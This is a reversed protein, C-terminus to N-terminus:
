VDHLYFYVSLLSLCDYFAVGLRPWPTAVKLVIILLAIYTKHERRPLKGADSNLRRPIVWFSAYFM